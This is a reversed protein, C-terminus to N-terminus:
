ELFSFDQENEFPFWPALYIGDRRIPPVENSIVIYEKM